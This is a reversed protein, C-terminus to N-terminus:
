KTRVPTIALRTDYFNALLGLKLGLRRLHAELQEAMADNTRRLAFTALLVKGEVVILRVDQYGLLQGEYEMPLQKIYDYNLGSRRLEIM